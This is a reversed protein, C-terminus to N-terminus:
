YTGELYWTEAEEVAVVKEEEVRENDQTEERSRVGKMSERGAQGMKAKERKRGEERGTGEIEEGEKRRGVKREEREGEERM